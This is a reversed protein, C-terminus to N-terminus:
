ASVGTKVAKVVLCEGYLLEKSLLYRRLSEDKIKLSTAMKVFLTLFRLFVRLPLRRTAVVDRNCTVEELQFGNDSLLDFLLPFGPLNIHTKRYYGGSFDSYGLLLYRLRSFVSLINPTTIVLKGGSKIIRSYERILHHHNELHEIGEICIIDDFFDDQYPLDKNLDVKEFNVATAFKKDDIDAAYVEFGIGELKESLFGQGAPADLLKGRKEQELLELVKEHVGAAAEILGKKHTEETM